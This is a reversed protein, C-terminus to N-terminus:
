VGKVRKASRALAEILPLRQGALFMVLAGGATSVHDVWESVGLRELAASLHGGSVITTGLSSAAALLLEDTGKEFGKKEFMGPPGSIFITGSSKIIKSYKRITREGIDLVKEGSDVEAVSLEVREGDKEVAVDEPLSFKNRYENLIVRAKEVFKEVDPSLPKKLLGAARLFVLGILGTLLVNDARGNEILASIAELRDSIKSGGLVATYPAKSTLMVRNLSKLERAVLYGACTPLLEAFGVISPHARHATPFADLVCLDFLPALRRVLHTKIAEEPSFEYNEEAAFRLNDLLLIEGPQLSKIAARSASGFVDEVFKVKKGLVESLAEAHSEMSVYDYRGVRGQHSALVIKAGELHRVTFSAERIRHLELLKGTVPDVPTNLDARVFVTKGLVDFDDITLFDVYVM